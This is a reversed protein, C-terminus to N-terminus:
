SEGKSGGMRAKSAVIAQNVLAIIPEDHPFVIGPAEADLMAVVRDLAVMAVDLRAQLEAIYAHEDLNDAGRLPLALSLNRLSDQAAHPILAAVRSGRGNEFM